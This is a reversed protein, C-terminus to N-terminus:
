GALAAFAFKLRTGTLAAELADHVHRSSLLRWLRRFPQFEAFARSIAVSDTSFDPSITFAGLPV